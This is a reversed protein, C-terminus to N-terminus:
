QNENLVEKQKIKNQNVLFNVYRQVYVNHHNCVICFGRYQHKDIYWNILRDNLLIDKFTKAKDIEDSVYLYDFLYQM